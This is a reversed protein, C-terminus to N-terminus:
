RATICGTCAAGLCLCIADARLRPAFSAGRAPLASAFCRPTTGPKWRPPHVGHLCRRPLADPHFFDPVDRVICGTCAAGLCLTLAKGAKIKRASAGRAPLASAFHIEEIVQLAQDTICGTCAAGLCLNRERLVPVAGKRHVGHLCRRPLAHMAVVAVVAVVHHVGHLCRRPLTQKQAAIIGDADRHVGHLCRRPLSQRLLKGLLLVAICGTCAAGLCLDGDDVEVFGEPSAGRAPLASAFADGMPPPLPM